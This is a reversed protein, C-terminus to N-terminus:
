LLAWRSAARIKRCLMLAPLAGVVCMQVVLDFSSPEPVLTVSGVVVSGGGFPVNDFARPSFDSPIWNTGQLSSPVLSIQFVGSAGVSAVFSTQLLNEGTAPVTIGLFAADTDGIVPISASPGTFTPVLGDSRLDLLYSSPLTATNFSLTGHSGAAPTINLGLSWAFLLDPTNGPNEIAIVVAPSPDHVPNWIVNSATVTLGGAHAQSTLAILLTIATGGRM